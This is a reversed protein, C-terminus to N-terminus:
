KITIASVPCQQEADKASEMLKEEIENESAEALGDDNMEFIEPCVAACVGCGICTDKDVFGKM